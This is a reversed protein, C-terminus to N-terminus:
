LLVPPPAETNIRRLNEATTRYIFYTARWRLTRPDQEVLVSSGPLDEMLDRASGHGVFTRPTGEWDDLATGAVRAVEIADDDLAEVRGGVQFLLTFGEWDPSDRFRRYVDLWPNM